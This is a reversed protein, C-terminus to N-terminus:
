TKRENENKNKMECNLIKWALKQLKTIFTVWPKENWLYSIEGLDKMESRQKLKEKISSMLHITSAVILLDDVYLAIYIVKESDSTDIWAYICNDAQLRIFGISLLYGDMELYWLRSGQKLGYLGKNLKCVLDKDHAIFGEPQAM